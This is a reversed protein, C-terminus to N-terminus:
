QTPQPATKTTKKTQPKTDKYTGTNVNGNCTNSAWLGKKNNRAYQEAKRFREQYKVDPPYPTAFAYGERVMYENVLTDGLWIYRLYRGYRDTNSVDKELTVQKKYILRSIANKAEKAYCQVPKKPHHLEPTDIGILRVKMETGNVTVRVTDGDTISTVIGVEGNIHPKQIENQQNKHKPKDEKKNPEETKTEKHISDKKGDPKEEAPQIEKVEDNNINKPTEISQNETENAFNNEHNDQVVETKTETKTETDQISFEPRAYITSLGTLFFLVVLAPIRLNRKSIKHKFIKDVNKYTKPYLLLITFTLFITGLFGFIVVLVTLIFASIIILIVIDEQKKPLKM